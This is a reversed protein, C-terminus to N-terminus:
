KGVKKLRTKKWYSGVRFVLKDGMKSEGTNIHNMLDISIERGEAILKQMDMVKDVAKDAAELANQMNAIREDQADIHALLREIHAGNVIYEGSEEQEDISERIAKLEVM